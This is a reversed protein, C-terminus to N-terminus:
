GGEGAEAILQEHTQYCASFFEFFNSYPETGEQWPLWIVPHGDSVPGSHWIAFVSSSGENYSVPYIQSRPPAFGPGPLAEFFADLTSNVDGWVSGRGLEEASLLTNGM